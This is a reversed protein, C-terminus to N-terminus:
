ELLSRKEREFTSSIGYKREIQSTLVVLRIAQRQLLVLKKNEITAQSGREKVDRANIKSGKLTDHLRRREQINQYAEPWDEKEDNEEKM